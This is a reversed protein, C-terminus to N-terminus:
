TSLQLKSVGLHLQAHQSTDHGDHYAIIAPDTESKHVIKIHRHNVFKIEDTVIDQLRYANNGVTRGIIIYPGRYPSILKDRVIGSKTVNKVLCYKGINLNSKSLLTQQRKTLKKFYNLHRNKLYKNWNRRGLVRVQRFLKRQKKLYKFYKRHAFAPETLTKDINELLHPVDIPQLPRRMQWLTLGTKRSVTINNMYSCTSAFM